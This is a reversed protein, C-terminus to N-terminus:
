SDLLRHKLEGFEVRGLRLVEESPEPQPCEILVYDEAGGGSGPATTAIGIARYVGCYAKALTTLYVLYERRETRRKKSLASVMYLLCDDRRPNYTLFHRTDGTQAARSAMAIARRGLAVRRVRPISALAAAIKAYEATGQRVPLSGPVDVPELDPDVDHVRDILLDVLRGASPDVNGALVGRLFEGSPRADEATFSDGRAKARLAYIEEYGSAYYAFVDQEQHVKPELTPILVDTRHELYQVLDWPTDLFSALNFFDRFSLVHLPFGVGAASPVLESALYPSSRHHLVVLGYMYRFESADFPITGRRANAVHTVRGSRLTRIAGSTQKLAKKLNKTAWAIPDRDRSSQAKAQIVLAVDGFLVLVDTVEKGGVRRPSRFVFDSSFAGEVASQVADETLEGVEKDFGLVYLGEVRRRVRSM